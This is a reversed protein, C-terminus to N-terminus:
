EKVNINLLKYWTKKDEFFDLISDYFIINNNKKCLNNYKTRILIANKNKPIKKIIRPDATIVIDFEKWIDEVSKPFKINRVRTCNKSLFFLTAQISLENEDCGIITLDIEEDPDLDEIDNKWINFVGPINKDICKASGYIEFVYDIYQFSEKQKDNEFCFPSYIDNDKYVLNNINFSLNICSKYYYLAYQNTFARIVDNIDIAVKIMKYKKRM